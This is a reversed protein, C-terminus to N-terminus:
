KGKEGERTEKGSQKSGVRGQRKGGTQGERKVTTQQSGTKAKM